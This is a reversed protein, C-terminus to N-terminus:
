KAYVLTIGNCELTEQENKLVSEVMIMDDIIILDKKAKLSFRFIEGCYNTNEEFAIAADKNQLNFDAIVANHSLWEGNVLEFANDDFFLSLAMSKIEGSDEMSVTVFFTENEKVSFKDKASESKGCGSFLLLVTFLLLLVSIRKM